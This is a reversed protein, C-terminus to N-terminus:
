VFVRIARCISDWYAHFWTQILTFCAKNSSHYPWTQFLHRLMSSFNRLTTCEYCYRTSLESKFPKLKNIKGKWLLHIGIICLHTWILPHNLYKSVRINSVFWFATIQNTLHNSKFQNSLPQMFNSKIQFYKSVQNTIEKKVDLWFSIKVRYNIAIINYNRSKWQM